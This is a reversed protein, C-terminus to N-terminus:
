KRVRVEDEDDMEWHLRDLCEELQEDTLNCDLLPGRPRPRIARGIAFGVFVGIYFAAFIWLYIM